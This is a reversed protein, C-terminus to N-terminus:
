ECANDTVVFLMAFEGDDDLGGLSGRIAREYGQEILHLNVLDGTVLDIVERFLIFGEQLVELGTM